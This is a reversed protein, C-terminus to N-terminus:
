FSLQHEFLDNLEKEFRNLLLLISSEFMILVAVLFDKFSLGSIFPIVTNSKSSVNAVVLDLTLNVAGSPM